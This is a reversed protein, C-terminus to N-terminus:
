LKKLDLAFVNEHKLDSLLVEMFKVRKLFSLDFSYTTESNVEEELLIELEILKKLDKHIEFRPLDLVEYIDSERIEKKYYIINLIRLVDENAICKLIKVMM